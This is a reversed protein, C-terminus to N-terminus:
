WWSVTAKALVKSLAADERVHRCPKADGVSSQLVEMMPEVGIAAEL